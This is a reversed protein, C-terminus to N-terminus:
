GWVSRLTSVIGQVFVGDGGLATVTKFPADFFLNASIVAKGEDGFVEVSARDKVIRLTMAGDPWRLRAAFCEAFKLDPIRQGVRSRDVTLLLKELDILVTAEDGTPNSFRVGFPQPCGGTWSFTLDLDLLDAPLSSFLERASDSELPCKELRFIAQRLSALEAVPLSRLELGERGGALHLTRPLTMNGRWPYTPLSNAYRWNNMWGILIRRDDREPMGTWTVAGYCDPGHDLWLDGIQRTVFTTGDFDGVYYKVSEDRRTQVPGLSVILVWKEVGAETRLPFLDTCEYVGAKPDHQRDFRSLFTWEILNESQYLDVHDYVALSMVWKRTPEHWFVKPDRFDRVGPNEIVPNESYHEWTGGEDLSFALSQTQVGFTDCSTYLAILPVRGASGLGSRNDQDAVVSGSFMYGLGLPDAHLALPRETWHLLDKSVVHGWHMNGWENGTPNHQFFLHFQGNFWILGNPDNLWNRPASYHFQPRFKEQYLEPPQARRRSQNGSM